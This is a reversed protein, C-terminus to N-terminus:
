TGEVVEWQSSLVMLDVLNRSVVTAVCTVLECTVLECEPGQTLQREKLSLQSTRM